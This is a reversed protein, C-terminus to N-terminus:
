ETLGEDWEVRQECLKQFLRKFRIFVPALYGPLDYFRGTISAVNRKTTKTVVAVEAVDAISFRLNDEGPDRVVGLVKM